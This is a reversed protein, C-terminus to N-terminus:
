YLFRFLSVFEDTCITIRLKSLCVMDRYTISNEILDRFSTQEIVLSVPPESTGKDADEPPKYGEEILRIVYFNTNLYESKTRNLSLM